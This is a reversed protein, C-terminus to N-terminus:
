VWTHFHFVLCEEINHILFSVYKAWAFVQEFKNDLLTLQDNRRIMSSSMSYDTFRSKTEVDEFSFQSGHLSGVNDMEESGYNSDNESDMDEEDFGEAEALEMFNDELENDPDEFNFDDDMAAVVDPDLDLRM